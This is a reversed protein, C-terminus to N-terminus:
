PPLCFASFIMDPSHPPSTDVEDSLFGSVVGYSWPDVTHDLGLMGM